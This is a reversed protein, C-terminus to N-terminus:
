LKVTEVIFLIFGNCLPYQQLSVSVSVCIATLCFVVTILIAWSLLINDLYISSPFIFEVYHVYLFYYYEIIHFCDFM